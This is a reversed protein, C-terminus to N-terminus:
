YCYEALTLYDDVKEKKQALEQPGASDFENTENHIPEYRIQKMLNIAEWPDDRASTVAALERRFKADESYFFQARPALTTIAFKCTNM